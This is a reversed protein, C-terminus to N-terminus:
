QEREDSSKNDACKRLSGPQAENPPNSIEDQYLIGMQELAKDGEKNETQDHIKEQSLEFRTRVRDGMRIM